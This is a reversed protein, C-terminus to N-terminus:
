STVAEASRDLNASLALTEVHACGAICHAQRKYVDLHTYSVSYSKDSLNDSSFEASLMITHSKSSVEARTANGAIVRGQEDEVFYYFNTLGELYRVAERYEDLQDQIYMQRYQPLRTEVLEQYEIFKDELREPIVGYVILGDYTDNIETNGTIVGEM